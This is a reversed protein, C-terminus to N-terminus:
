GVGGPLTEVEVVAKSIPYDDIVLTVLYTQGDTLAATDTRSLKLTAYTEDDAHTVGTWDDGPDDSGTGTPETVELRTGDAPNDILVRVTKGALSHVPVYYLAYQWLLGRVIKQGLVPLGDCCSM